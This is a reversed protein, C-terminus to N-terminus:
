GRSGIWCEVFALAAAIAADRDLASNDLLMAGPARILPADARGTDRADRARVDALVADLDHRLGQYLIPIIPLSTRGQTPSARRFAIHKSITQDSAVQM